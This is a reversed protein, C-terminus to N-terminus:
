ASYRKFYRIEICRKVLNLSLSFRRAIQRYVSPRIFSTNAAHRRYRITKVPVFAVRGFIEALIGLWMDHMPIRHPFPLAIELLPRTFALCCGTYTNDYINKLLGPGARNMTFLSKELCNGGADVIEGDMMILSIRTVETDLQEHILDLRGPLWIDDQDSLVVIQRRAHCLAHEFNRIPSHFDNGTLISIRPDGYSRVIELTDDTSADDSVILEDDPGLQALISDLQERIFRSGNCTAM